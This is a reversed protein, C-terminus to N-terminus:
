GFRLFREIRGVTKALRDKTSLQCERVVVVRWGLARLARVSRADRLRNAAFKELWFATNSQPIKAIRCGHHAHWFCGHMLVLAGWLPFVLDPKGPLTAAHLRFRFGLGHLARRLSLEPRTDRGRIRSMRESRGEPTLFDVM